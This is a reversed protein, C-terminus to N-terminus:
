EGLSENTWCDIDMTKSSSSSKARFSGGLLDPIISDIEFVNNIKPLTMSLLGIISAICYGIYIVQGGM